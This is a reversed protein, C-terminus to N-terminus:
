LLVYDDPDLQFPSQRSRMDVQVYDDARHRFQPSVAIHRLARTTTPSGYAILHLRKSSRPCAAAFMNVRVGADCRPAPDVPATHVSGSMEATTTAHSATGRVPQAQQVLPTTRWQASLLGAGSTGVLSGSGSGIGAMFNRQMLVILSRQLVSIFHCHPQLKGSEVSDTSSISSASSNAATKYISNSSHMGYSSNRNNPTVCGKCSMLWSLSM